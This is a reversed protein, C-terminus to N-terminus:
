EIRVKVEKINMHVTINDDIPVSVGIKYWAGEVVELEVETDATVTVPQYGIKEDPDASALTIKMDGFNEPVSVKIKNTLPSIAEHSFSFGEAGAPIDIKIDFETQQTGCGIFSLALLLTLGILLLKKM